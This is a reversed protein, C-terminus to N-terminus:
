LARKLIWSVLFEGETMGSASEIAQVPGLTNQSGYEGLTGSVIATDGSESGERFGELRAYILYNSDEGYVQQFGERTLHDEVIRALKLFAASEKDVNNANRYKQYAVLASEASRADDQCTEASPDTETSEVNEDLCSKGYQAFVADLFQPTLGAVRDFAGQYFLTDWHLNYLLFNRTDRVDDPIFFNFGYRSNMEQIIKLVKDKSIKWGNYARTTKLFSEQPTLSRDMVVEFEGVDNKASGLFSYGPNESTTSPVGADQAVAWKIFTSIGNAGLAEFNRGSTSSDYRRYVRRFYGNPDTVDIYTASKLKLFSWILFNFDFEDQTFYHTLTYPPKAKELRELSGGLIAQRFGLLAETMSPDTDLNGALSLNSFKTRTSGSSHTFSAKIISLKAPDKSKPDQRTGFSAGAGFALDLSLVNGYDHYIQLTDKDKRYFHIRGIISKSVAAEASLYTWHMPSLSALVNADAILSDTIILSEGVALLGELSKIAESIISQQDDKSKKSFDPSAIKNLTQAVDGNILPVAINQFPENLAAKITKIPKLHVYERQFAGGAEAGLSVPAVGDVGIFAGANVIFGATDAVQVMNDTGLYSGTVIERDAILSVGWTPFAYVGFPVKQIQGTQLYKELMDAQVEDGHESIKKRINQNLYPIKSTYDSANQLVAGILKSWFFGRISASDMPSDPDSTSFHTAYGPYWEKSLVGGKVDPLVSIDGTYPLAKEILQWNSILSNRRAILKEVLLKAVPAPYGAGDVIQQWDARSLQLIRRSIWRGDEWTTDLSCGAGASCRLNLPMMVSDSIVRAAEWNILNVSESLDMMSFPVLLSTLVRRNAAVSDTMFGLALNYINDEADLALADQVTVSAPHDTRAIVWRDKNGLTQTWLQSEFADRAITNDFYIQIKPIYQVAPVKYGIKRLLNKLLLIDHATRTFLLTRNLSKGNIVQSISIRYRDAGSAVDDVYTVPLDARIGLNDDAPNLVKPYVDKWLDSSSDPNLTSLDFTGGSQRYLADAEDPRIVRGQYVLDAAPNGQYGIPVSGPIGSAAFASQLVALFLFMYLTSARARRGM